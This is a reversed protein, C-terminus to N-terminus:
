WTRRDRDRRPAGRSRVPHAGLGRRIRANVVEERSLQRENAQQGHEHGAVHEHAHEPEHDDEHGHEHGHEHAHGSPGHRHHGLRFVGSGRRQSAGVIAGDLEALCIGSALWMYLYIIEPAFTQWATLVGGLLLAGMAHTTAVTVGILLGDKVNGREGVVYAAMVTKGHGPAFTHLGGLGLAFALALLALGFTM